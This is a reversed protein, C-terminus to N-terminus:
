SVFLECAYVAADRIGGIGDVLGRGYKGPTFTYVGPVTTVAKVAAVREAEAPNAEAGPSEGTGAPASANEPEMAEAKAGPSSSTVAQPPAFPSTDQDEGLVAVGTAAEVSADGAKAKEDLEMIKNRQVKDVEGAVEAATKLGRIGDVVEPPAHLAFATLGTMVRGGAISEIVAPSVGRGSCVRNKFDAYMEDVAASHRKLEDESLKHTMDHARSGTFISDLTVHFRNFFSTLFTPRLSAVGISGTITSPAALIADAHTSVLYGGSASANGFSAVVVKGKKERLDRVAGWITDSEVVGGGGTDVRLVVAGINPDEGAEKLGRVVAATGFEGPEGITGMLYVVGIEMVDRTAKEVAREMVKAYHYFGKIVREDDGGSEKELVSDLIDQRYCTGNLLGEKVAQSATYPGTQSLKKVKDLGGQGVVDPFRNRAIYTMLNDNLDNLLQTHNERQPATLAEDIYPQVFSKYENRAEAHVEIGLWKALRGYFPVTTGADVRTLM